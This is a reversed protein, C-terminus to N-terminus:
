QDTGALDVAHERVLGVPQGAAAPRAPRRQDIGELGGTTIRVLRHRGGITPHALELDADARRHVPLLRLLGGVPHERNPGALCTLSDWADRPAPGVAPVVLHSLVDRLLDGTDMFGSLPDEAALRHPSDAGV